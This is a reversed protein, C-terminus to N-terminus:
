SLTPFNHITTAIERLKVCLGLIGFRLGLRLGFLPCHGQHCDFLKSSKGSSRLM